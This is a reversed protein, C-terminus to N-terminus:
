GIAGLRMSDEPHDIQCIALRRAPDAFQACGHTEVRAVLPRADRQGVSEDVVLLEVLRLLREVVRKASQRRRSLRVVQEAECISALALTLVGHALKLSRERLLRQETGVGDVLHDSRELLVLLIELCGRHRERRADIEDGVTVIRVAIEPARVIQLPVILLRSRLEFDCQEDIRSVDVGQGRKSLQVEALSTRHISHLRRTARELDIWSMALRSVNVGGRENPHAVRVFAARFHLHELPQLSLVAFCARARELQVGAARPM